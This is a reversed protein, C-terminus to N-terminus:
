NILKRLEDISSVAGEMYVLTIGTYSGEGSVLYCLYRYTRGSSPLSLILSQTSNKKRLESGTASQKDLNVLRDIEAKQRPTALTRVSHYFTLRYKSLTRGRVKVEVLKGQPVVKGEFVANVHLGSQAWGLLPFLVAVLMSLITRKMDEKM